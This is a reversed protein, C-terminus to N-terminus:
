VHQFYGIRPKEDVYWKQIVLNAGGCRHNVYRLISSKTADYADIYLLKNTDLKMIYTLRDPAYLKRKIGNEFMTYTKQSIIKGTYEGVLIGARIVSRAGLRLGWGMDRENVVDFAYPIEKCLEAFHRNTCQNDFCILDSCEFFMASNLRCHAPKNTRYLYM